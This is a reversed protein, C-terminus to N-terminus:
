QPHGWPDCGDLPNADLCTPWVPRPLEIKAVPEIKAFVCITWSIGAILGSPRADRVKFSSGCGPCLAEDGSDDGLHIPTHCHPSRLCNVPPTTSQGVAGDAESRSAPTAARFFAHEHDVEHCDIGKGYQESRPEDIRLLDSMQAPARRSSEIATRWIRSCHSTRAGVGLM